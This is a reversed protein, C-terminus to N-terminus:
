HVMALLLCLCLFSLFIEFLDLLLLELNKEDQNGTLVVTKPVGLQFGTFFAAGLLVATLNLALYPM